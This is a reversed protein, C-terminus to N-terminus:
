KVEVFQVNEILKKLKKEVNKVYVKFYIIICLHGCPLIAFICEHEMCIICKKTLQTTPIPSAEVVVINNNEPIYEPQIDDLSENEDESDTIEEEIDIVSSNNLDPVDNRPLTILGDACLIDLIEQNNFTSKEKYDDYRNQIKWYYITVLRSYHISVLCAITLLLLIFFEYVVGLKRYMFINICILYM